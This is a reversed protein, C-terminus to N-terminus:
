TAAATRPRSLADDVSWAGAGAAALYLFVFCWAVALEGQNLMPLIPNGRSAHGMFYAVAMEGSLLFAVPRTLWGATILVGGALEMVMAAGALSAPPVAAMGLLGLKMLGATFFMAGSVMRLVAYTQGEYRQPIM